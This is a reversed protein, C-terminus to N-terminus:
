VTRALRAIGELCVRLGPTPRSRSTERLIEYLAHAFQSGSCPPRQRSGSGSHRLQPGVHSPAPRAPRFGRSRSASAPLPAPGSPSRLSQRPFIAAAAALPDGFQRARAPDVARDVPRRSRVTTPSQPQVERSASCPARRHGQRRVAAAGQSAPSRRPRPPAAREAVLRRPSRARLDKRRDADAVLRLTSGGESSPRRSPTTESYGATSRLGGRSHRDRRDGRARAIAVAPSDLRLDAADLSELASRPPSSFIRPRRRRRGPRRSGQVWRPADPRPRRSHLDASSKIM